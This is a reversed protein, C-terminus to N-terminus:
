AKWCTSDRSSARLLGLRSLFVCFVVLRRTSWVGGGRARYALCIRDRRGAHRQGRCLGCLRGCLSGLGGLLLLLQLESLRRAPHKSWLLLLFGARSRFGARGRLWRGVGRRFGARFSHRRGFLGRSGFLGGCFGTGGCRSRFFRSSASRRFLTCYLFWSSTWSAASLPYQAPFLM